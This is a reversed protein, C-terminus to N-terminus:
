AFQLVQHAGFQGLSQVDRFGAKRAMESLARFTEPFDYTAVHRCAEEIQAHPIGTWETRMMHLYKELYQERTQGEERVVDVLLFMGSPKLLRSCAAFLRNKGATDLHHMAFSSYVVDFSSASVSQAKALMDQEQLAVSPWSKLNQAAEALAAPSLDVGEYHSPPFDRACAALSRANGCGLDLLSYAAGSKRAAIADHVCAHIEQHFMYNHAVVADYLSWSSRFLEASAEPQNM